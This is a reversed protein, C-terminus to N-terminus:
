FGEKALERLEKTSFYKQLPEMKDTDKKRIYVWNYLNGMNSRYMFWKRDPNIKEDYRFDKWRQVRDELTILKDWNRVVGFKLGWVTNLEEIIEKKLIDKKNRIYLNFRTDYRQKIPKVDTWLGHIFKELYVEPDKSHMRYSLGLAEIKEM